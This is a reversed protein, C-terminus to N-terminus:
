LSDRWERGAATIRWERMSAAVSDRNPNDDWMQAWEADTLKEALSRWTAKQLLRHREYYVDLTMGIRDVPSGDEVVRPRHRVTTYNELMPSCTQSAPKTEPWFNIEEPSLEFGRDLMALFTAKDIEAGAVVPYPADGELSTEDTNTPHAM